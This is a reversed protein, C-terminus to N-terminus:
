EQLVDFDATTPEGGNCKSVDMPCASMIIVCDQKARLVMHEGPQGQPDLCQLSNGHIRVNMFVNLPDPMWGHALFRVTEERWPSKISQVAEYLNKACNDHDWPVGLQVYREPSCAAFLVDHMGCSTDERITLIPQQRNDLFSENMSPLLKHHTSRTHTMSLYTPFPENTSTSFAWTDIVQGGTTNVIKIAQGAQLHQIAFSRAPITPM